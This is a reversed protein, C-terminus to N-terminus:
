LDCEICMNKGEGYKVNFLKYNRDFKTYLQNCSKCKFCCNDYLLGGIEGEGMRSMFENTMNNPLETFLLKRILSFLEFSLLESKSDIDTELQNKLYLKNVENHIDIDTNSALILNQNDHYFRIQEKKLCLIELQHIYINTIITTTNNVWALNQNKTLNMLADHLDSCFWKRFVLRFPIITNGEGGPDLKNLFTNKLLDLEDESEYIINLQLKKQQEKLKNIEMSYETDRLVKCVKQLNDM